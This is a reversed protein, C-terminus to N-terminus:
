KKLFLEHTDRVLHDVDSAAVLMTVGLPAFFVQGILEKHEELFATIRTHTEREETIGSGVLTVTGIDDRVSVRDGFRARVRQEFEAREHMNEASYLFTAGAHGTFSVHSMFPMVSQAGVANLCDFIDAQDAADAGSKFQLCLVDKKGAVATFQRDDAVPNRRIVTGPSDPASTSKAYVAINRRRAYELADGAMVRAGSKSLTMMEDIDVGDLRYADAVVQPDASYIGDVDSYIEVREAELAAALAIATTDSGGRGLTTIERKYSVGQFGAVIVVKGRELEDQIRFPRVEIIRANSHSHTTLIGCQSGTFSIAEHGLQNIAISLLAMTIREGVSLLMDLERRSPEAALERAMQLLVDTTKGMASVVVVVGNGAAACDAVQQAVKRIREIDAVSSGGYKHVVVPKM